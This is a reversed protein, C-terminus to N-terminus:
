FILNIFQNYANRNMISIIIVMYKMFDGVWTNHITISPRTSLFNLNYWNEEMSDQPYKYGFFITTHRSGHWTKVISETLGHDISNLWDHSEPFSLFRLLRLLRIKTIETSLLRLLRLIWLWDWYSWYEWGTRLVWYM